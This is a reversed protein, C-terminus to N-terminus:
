DEAEPEGPLKKMKLRDGTAAVVGRYWSEPYGPHTAERTPTKVNGDLYKVLLFEGLRRWRDTVATGANVSYDTLYDVALRPSREYLVGAASEIEAQDSLFQGELEQQVKRIDHIMDSYRLYAFNSVWNFVWFASDWTFEYLSGNDEAFSEPVERVGCYV